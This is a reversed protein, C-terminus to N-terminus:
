TIYTCRINHRGWGLRKEDVIKLDIEMSGRKKEVIDTAEKEKNSNEIRGGSMREQGKM